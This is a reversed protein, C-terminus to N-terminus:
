PSSQHAKKELILRDLLRAYPESFRKGGPDKILKLRMKELANMQQPELDMHRINHGKYFIEGRMRDFHVSVVEEENLFTYTIREGFSVLQSEYREEIRKRRSDPSGKNLGKEITGTQKPEM